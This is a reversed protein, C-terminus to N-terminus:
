SAPLSPPQAFFTQITAMGSLPSQCTGGRCIFLTPLADPHKDALLHQPFRERLLQAVEAEPEAVPHTVMLRHPRYHEQMSQSLRMQKPDAPDISLIWEERPSLAWLLALLGQATASPLNRLTGSLTQLLREAYRLYHENGTWVALKLLALAALNNGSPTAQDHIDIVPTILHRHAHMTYRFCGLSDDWFHTLMYDTLEGAWLLWRPQWRMELADLLALVVAAYDDLYAPINAEGHTWAHWLGGEPRKLRLELFGLASEVAQVFTAESLLRAGLAYASIMLGNWATIVKEDRGPPLRQQRASLLLCRACDIQARLEKEPIQLIAAAQAWTKPRHLINRHEWNGESSVDYVYCFIKSLEPPLLREIEEKHWVYYKGEEGESDADLTSYFAGEPHTLEHRVFELTQRAIDFFEREQITQGAELYTTALLANDYLMKEFHPVLWENDTAYRAFGGGLQDYIGGRAMKDLTLRVVDLAEPNDFRNGCRLLLLLDQSHPFKPAHGLGGHQRDASRLLVHMAHRLVDENLEAPPVIQQCAQQVANTLEAAQRVVADRRKEWTDHVACLVDRFGPRGWRARPPWYTGGFFPQLDPTLFVSLPWGGSGTLALVANMYIQDLDPREERDVKINVFWANMLRALEEDEFSEREMVHCWHCASYGISLFIPRDTQRALELAEDGWPYWDVPNHAHQRLYPSTTHILRNTQKM